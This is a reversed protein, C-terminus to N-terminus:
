AQAPAKAKRSKVRQGLLRFFLGVYLPMRLWRWPLFVAKMTEGLGTDFLFQSPRKRRQAFVDFVGKEAICVADPLVDRNKALWKGSRGVGSGVLLLDPSSKRAALLLSEQISSRFHGQYRGVIKLQPFTYKLNGEAMELARARGGILYLSGNQQEIAGLTRVIFQFPMYRAPRVQGALVAMRQVSKSVPIVLGADALAQRKKRFIWAKIVDFADVFLVIQSRGTGTLERIM